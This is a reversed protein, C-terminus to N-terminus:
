TPNGATKTDSASAMGTPPSEGARLALADLGQLAGRLEDAGDAHAALERLLRPPRLRARELLGEDRLLELPATDAVIEGDALVVVRDAYGAVARLDHSSFMVGRGDHAVGRLARMVHVSTHRDLGFGPEDALLHRRGHVLMAAISLRRKQGGSLRHPDRDAHEALGFRDLVDDIAGSTGPGLGYALEGRVTTAVFQHEPNQFIMGARPGSVEGHRPRIVGALAQLLTSKGGGNAGVLAVSEGARLELDVGRIVAEARKGGPAVSLGRARLPTVGAAADAGPRGEDVGDAHTAERALERLAPLARPDDMGGSTGLLADLEVDVPLWCGLAVLERGHRGAVERAPGDYRITGDAGLVIWRSPLARAGEDGALEDLRHEVLVTAISARRAAGVVHRVVDVGAGDLMSAPEDLLLLRPGTVLAAALAVRQLQGGSLATTDRGAWATAGVRELAQRVRPGIEERPVALNELPFAIEDEVVPLCVGTEPDQALVGSADALEAVGTVDVDRGTVTMRGSVSAAVAHPVAGHIMRLVTSKGSGSAGLLLVGEGAEIRLDIPGVSGGDPFDARRAAASVVVPDAAEPAHGSWSPDFTVRGPSVRADPM